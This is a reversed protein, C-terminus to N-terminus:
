LKDILTKFIRVIIVLTLFVRVVSLAFLTGWAPPRCNSDPSSGISWVTDVDLGNCRDALSLESDASNKWVFTFAFSVMAPGLLFFSSLYMFITRTLLLSPKSLRHHAQISKGWISLVAACALFATSLGSSTGLTLAAIEGDRSTYINYALFYRVSTYVAWIGSFGLSM